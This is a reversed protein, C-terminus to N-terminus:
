ATATFKVTTHPISQKARWSLNKTFLGRLPLFALATCSISEERFAQRIVALTEAVNRGLNSYFKLQEKTPDMM